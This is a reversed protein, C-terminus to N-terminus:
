SFDNWDTMTHYRGEHSLWLASHLHSRPRILSVRPSYSCDNKDFLFYGETNQHHVAAQSCATLTVSYSINAINPPFANKGLIRM